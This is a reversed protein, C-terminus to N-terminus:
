AAAGQEGLERILTLVLERRPASLGGITQQIRIADHIAEVAICEITTVRVNPCVGCKRRRRIYTPGPRSDVVAMDPSGCTPCTIGPDRTNM